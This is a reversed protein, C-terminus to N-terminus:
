REARERRVDREKELEEGPQIGGPISGPAGQAEGAGGGRQPIRNSRRKGRRFLEAEMLRQVGRTISASNIRLPFLRELRMGCRPPPAPSACPAGPDIGPPM